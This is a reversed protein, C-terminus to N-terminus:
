IWGDYFEFQIDIASATITQQYTPIARTGHWMGQQSDTPIIGAPLFTFDFSNAGPEIRIWDTITHSSTFTLDYANTGNVTIAKQGCDIILVQESGLTGTWTMDISGSKEIQVSTVNSGMVPMTITIIPNAVDANGNNTVSVTQPDNDVDQNVTTQTESSWVASFIQFNMSAPLTLTHELERRGSLGVFRAWVWERTADDWQRYLKGRKGVQARLAQFTSIISAQNAENLLASKSNGQGRHYIQESGNYDFAGALLPVVGPQVETTFDNQPMSIPLTVGNFEDLIYPM